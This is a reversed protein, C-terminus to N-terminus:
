KKGLLTICNEEPIEFYLLTGKDAEECHKMGLSEYYDYAQPLSHLSFGPRLHLTNVAYDLAKKVLITGIGKYIRDHILSDRNWPAAALYEIYFIDGAELLSKKPHYFVCVGQPKGEAYLYFWEYEYSRYKLSKAFWDWHEDEMQISNLIRTIEEESYGSALIREYLQIRFHHWEQDCQNSSILDWGHNIIYPINIGDSKILFGTDITNTSPELNLTGNNIHARLEDVTM